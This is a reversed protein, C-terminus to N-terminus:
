LPDSISLGLDSHCALRAEAPAEMFLSNFYCLKGVLMMVKRIPTQTQESSGSVSLNHSGPRKLAPAPLVASSLQGSALSSSRLMGESATLPPFAMPEQDMLLQLCSLEIRSRTLHTLRVCRRSMWPM